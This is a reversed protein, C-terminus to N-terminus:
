SIDRMERQLLRWYGKFAHAFRRKLKWSAATQGLELRSLHQQSIGVRQGFQTQNEGLEERKTRIIEAWDTM